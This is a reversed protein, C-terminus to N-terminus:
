SWLFRLQGRTKPSAFLEDEGDWVLNVGREIELYEQMWSLESMLPRELVLVLRAGPVRQLYRYEYLQSLGARVQSRINRENTSKIEFIFATGYILVV